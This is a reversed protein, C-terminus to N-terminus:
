PGLIRRAISRSPDAREDRTHVPGLSILLEELGSWSESKEEVGEGV